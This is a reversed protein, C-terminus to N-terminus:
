DAAVTIDPVGTPVDGQIIQDVQVNLVDSAPNPWAALGWGSGIYFTVTRTVSCSGGSTILFTVSGSYLSFSANVGTGSVWLGLGPPTLGQTAWTYTNGAPLTVYVSGASIANVTNLPKSIGGNNSYTGGFTTSLVNKSIQKTQGGSTTATTRRTSSASTAPCSSEATSTTARTRTRSRSSM